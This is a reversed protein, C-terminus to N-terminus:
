VFLNSDRVTVTLQLSTKKLLPDTTPNLIKLLKAIIQVINVFTLTNTHINRCFISIKNLNIHLLNHRYIVYAVYFGFSFLLFPKQTNPM